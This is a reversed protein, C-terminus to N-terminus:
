PTVTLPGNPILRYRWLGARLYERQVTHAGYRLKRFDRLRASVAPESGHVAQAIEPLTRWRTDRMLAFVAHLQHHLRPGDRAPDYTAGSIPPLVYGPCPGPNYPDFLVPHHPDHTKRM